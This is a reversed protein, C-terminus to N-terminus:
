TVVIFLLMKQVASYKLNVSEGERVDASLRAQTFKRISALARKMIKMYRTTFDPSTRTSYSPDYLFRAIWKVCVTDVLLKLKFTGVEDNAIRTM